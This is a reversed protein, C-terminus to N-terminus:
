RRLCRSRRRGAARCPPPMLRSRTRRPACTRASSNVPVGSTESTSCPAFRAGACGQPPRPVQPFHATRREPATDAGLAASSRAPWRSEQWARRSPSASTSSGSARACSISTAPMARGSCRAGRAPRYPAATSMPVVVSARRRYSRCLPAASPWAEQQFGWPVTAASTIPRMPAASSPLPASRCACTRPAISSSSRVAHLPTQRGSSTSVRTSAPLM